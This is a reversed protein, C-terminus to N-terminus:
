RWDKAVGQIHPQWAECKCSPLHLVHFPLMSFLHEFCSKTEIEKGTITAGISLTSSITRYWIITCICGLFEKNGKVSHNSGLIMGAIVEKEVPL